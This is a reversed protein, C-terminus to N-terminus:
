EAPKEGVHVSVVTFRAFGNGGTVYVPGACIWAHATMGDVLDKAVGLYFAHPIQRRALLFRATMAQALCKSEWPTYRAALRVVRGVRRAVEIQRPELLPTQAALQVQRGLWPSIRRFPVGLVAARAVGLGAFALLFLAQEGLPLRAFSRAKRLITHFLSM